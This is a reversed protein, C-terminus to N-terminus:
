VQPSPEKFFYNTFCHKSCFHISNHNELKLVKAGDLENILQLGIEGGSIEMWGEPLVNGRERNCLDCNYTTTIM